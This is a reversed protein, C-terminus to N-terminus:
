MLRVFVGYGGGFDLFDGESNFFAHILSNSIEALYLNRNLLGIDLRTIISEYSENLWHAQETQIFQCNTCKFYSVDYKGLVRKVFIFSSESSCINCKTM